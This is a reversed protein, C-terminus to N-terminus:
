SVHSNVFAEGCSGTRLAAQTNEGCSQQGGWCPTLLDLTPSWLAKQSRTESTM